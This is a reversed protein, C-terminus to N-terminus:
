LKAVFKEIKNSSHIMKGNYFVRFGKGRNYRDGTKDWLVTLEGGHYPIRDLCFWDWQEQPVLPNIRVSDRLMPRVGVLGSIVLDCFSSHNYAKGREEYQYDEDQDIIARALWEGTYPNLNEDIWAIEKGDETPRTHSRAYRNLLRLYDDRNVVDQSYNNLLNAMATLTQSTAFPWSPGNWQCAHGEYTIEFYPHRQECTTPGYPAKFGLTDQLQEWAMPYESNDDPLNFYWPVYGIEERVNLPDDDETYDRPLVTFFQLSDNWLRNQVTQKLITAEKEFSKQLETNGSLEAIRSIALADGYMYSNITPRTAAVWGNKVGDNLIRGSATFEMGDRNDFQWFLTNGSDRRIKEWQEYNEVLYPLQAAMASDNRYVKNFALVADAVWFSYSRIGEGSHKLWFNIYDSIYNPDRLWRGEYIHHGAPCNITNYKGSWGVDPLFETIVFGVPTEKIHKRFTWWRFYYTREIDEDPCDLLPINDKLFAWSSDNPIYQPYVETHNENFRTIYHKYDAPDLVALGEESKNCSIMGIGIGLALLIGFIHRKKM